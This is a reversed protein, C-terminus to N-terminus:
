DEVSLNDETRAIYKNGSRKDGDGYCIKMIILIVCCCLSVINAAILPIDRIAFGYILWLTMGVLLLLPQWISLDRAQKTRFTKWVQPFASSTTIAGAILGLTTIDNM